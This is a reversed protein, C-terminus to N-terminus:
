SLKSKNSYKLKQTEMETFNYPVEQGQQYQIDEIQNELDAIEVEDQKAEEVAQLKTLKAKLAAKM